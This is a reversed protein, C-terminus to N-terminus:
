QHATFDDDSSRVTFTIFDTNLGSIKPPKIITLHNKNQYKQVKETETLEFRDHCCKAAM